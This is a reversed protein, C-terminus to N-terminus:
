RRHKKRHKAYNSKKRYRKQNSKNAAKNSKECEVLGMLYNIRDEIPEPYDGRFIYLYYNVEKAFDPYLRELKNFQEHKRKTLIAGNEVTTAGNERVPVIHHFTYPNDESLKGGLMGVEHINCLNILSM